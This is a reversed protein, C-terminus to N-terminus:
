YLISSGNSALYGTLVFDEIIGNGAALVSIQKETCTELVDWLYCSQSQPSPIANKIQFSSQPGKTSFPSDHSFEEKGTAIDTNFM